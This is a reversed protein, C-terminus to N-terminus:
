SIPAEWAANWSLEGIKGDVEFGKEAQFKRLVEDARRDFVKDSGSGLNWGRAIMQQKWLRVDEGETYSSTLTIYRGSWPSHAIRVNGVGSYAPRGFGYWVGPFRQRSMVEGGNGGGQNDTNGEISTISGNANVSEVIGVHWADSEDTDKHWDFFVVDGVKPEDFFQGKSRFWEVGSPCYAFGKAETAPLPLGAKYFCYSVFIACWQVGDMGYWKGYMNLNIPSEVTGIEGTAIQLVDSPVTM